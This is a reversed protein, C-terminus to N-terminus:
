RNFYHLLFLCVVIESGITINNAGVQIFIALGVFFSPMEQLVWSLRANVKVGLFFLPVFYNLVYTQVEIMM